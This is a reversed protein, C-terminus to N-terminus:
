FNLELYKGFDNVFAEILCYVAAGNDLRRFTIVEFISLSSPSVPSLLSFNLLTKIGKM